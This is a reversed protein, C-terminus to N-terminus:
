TAETTDSETRGWLRCGVLSRWGQSEGPLCVPTPQWKRRWHMFTFLSLSTAWDHGVWCGWPSCGVPSRRGHSKGPLLVPTPHWQRRRIPVYIDIIVKFTFPNFAGVLLCLSASHICFCSAYIHQRCSVWKLGWSVYLSFTLPHFFINWAFLFCFFAPTVISM